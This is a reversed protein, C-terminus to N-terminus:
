MAGGGRHGLPVAQCRCLTPAHGSADVCVIQQTPKPPGGTVLMSTLTPLTHAARLERPSSAIGGAWASAFASLNTDICRVYKARLGLHSFNFAHVWIGAVWEGSWKGGRPLLGPSALGQAYNKSGDHNSWPPRDTLLLSSACFKGGLGFVAIRRQNEDAVFHGPTLIYASANM